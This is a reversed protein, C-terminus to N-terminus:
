WGAGLAGLFSESALVWSNRPVWLSGFLTEWVNVHTAEWVKLNSTKLDVNGDWDRQFKGWCDGTRHEHIDM